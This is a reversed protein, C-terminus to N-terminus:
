QVIGLSFPNHPTGGLLLAGASQLVQDQTIVHQRMTTLDRLLRDLPSPRYISTTQLLDYLRTM